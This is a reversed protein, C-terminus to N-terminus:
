CTLHLCAVINKNQSSLKNYIKVAKKTNSIIVKDIKQELKDTLIPDLQMVNYYGTGIILIEPKIELIEAFNELVPRHHDTCYWVRTKEPSVILDGKTYTEGNVTIKGFQYDEIIGGM